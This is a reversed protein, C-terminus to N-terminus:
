EPTGSVVPSEEMVSPLGEKKGEGAMAQNRGMAKKAVDVKGKAHM